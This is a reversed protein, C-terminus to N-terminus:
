ARRELRERRAHRHAQRTGPPAGDPQRRHRPQRRCEGDRGLRRPRRVRRRLRAEHEHVTWGDLGEGGNGARRIELKRCRSRAAGACRAHHRPRGDLAHRSLPRRSQRREHGYRPQDFRLEAHARALWFDIIGPEAVKNGNAAAAIESVSVSFEVDKPRGDDDVAVTSSLPKDANAIPTAARDIRLRDPDRENLLAKRRELFAANAAETYTSTCSVSVSGTAGGATAFQFVYSSAAPAKFTTAAASTGGILTAPAGAGSVLAVSANQAAFSLLDGADLVIQRAVPASAAVDANLLGRNIAACGSGPAAVAPGACLLSAAFGIAAIRGCQAPDINRSKM